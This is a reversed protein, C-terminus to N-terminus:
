AAGRAAEWRNRLEKAREDLEVGVREVSEPYLNLGFDDPFVRGRARLRRGVVEDALSSELLSPDPSRRLRELAEDLTVGWLSETM